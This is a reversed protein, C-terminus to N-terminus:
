EIPLKEHLIQPDVLQLLSFGMLSGANGPQLWQSQATDQMCKCGIMWCLKLLLLIPGSPM